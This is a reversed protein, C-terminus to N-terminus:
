IMTSLTQDDFNEVKNKFYIYMLRESSPEQFVIDIIELSQQM